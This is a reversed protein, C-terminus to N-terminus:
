YAARQCTQLYFYTLLQRIVRCSLSVTKRADVNTALIDEVDQQSGSSPAPLMVPAPEPWKAFWETWLSLWLDSLTKSAKATFYRPVQEQLWTLQEPTAWGKPGAKKTDPDSKIVKSKGM